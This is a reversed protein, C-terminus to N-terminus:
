TITIVLEKRVEGGKRSVFQPIYFVMWEPDGKKGCEYRDGSRLLDFRNLNTILEFKFEARTM